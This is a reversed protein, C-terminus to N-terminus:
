WGLWEGAPGCGNLRIVIAPSGNGNGRGLALPQRNLNQVAIREVANSKAKMQRVGSRTSGVLRIETAHKWFVTSEAM